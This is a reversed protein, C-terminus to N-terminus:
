SELKVKREHLFKFRYQSLKRIVKLIATVKPYPIKNKNASHACERGAALVTMIGKNNSLGGSRMAVIKDPLYRVSEEPASKLFRVMLDYDAAIKYNLDFVGFACFLNKRAYFAPHAPMWGLNLKRKSFNGSVWNRQIKRLDKANVYFLDAFVVNLGPDLFPAMMKAVSNSDLFIDDANLFGIVDGTANQIGKNMADYVGNDPECIFKSIFKSYKMIAEVTSDKSQGDIVIYEISPYQQLIVSKLTDEITNEANYCVTILSLKPLM